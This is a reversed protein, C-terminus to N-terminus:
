FGDRYGELNNELKTVLLNLREIEKLCEDVIARILVRPYTWEDPALLYQRLEIRRKPTM